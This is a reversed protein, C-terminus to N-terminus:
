EYLTECLPEEDLIDYEGAYIHECAEDWRSDNDALVTANTDPEYGGRIWVFCECKHCQILYKM